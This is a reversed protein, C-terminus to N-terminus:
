YLYMYKNELMGDTCIGKNKKKDIFKEHTPLKIEYHGM